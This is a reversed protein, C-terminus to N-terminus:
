RGIVNLALRIPITNGKLYGVLVHASRLHNLPGPNGVGTHDIIENFQDINIFSLPSKLAM